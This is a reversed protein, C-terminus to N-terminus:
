TPTTEFSRPVNKICDEFLKTPGRSNLYDLMVASLFAPLDTKYLDSASPTVNSDRFLEMTFSVKINAFNRHAVGSHKIVVVAVVVICFCM